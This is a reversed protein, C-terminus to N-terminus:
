DEVGMFRLMLDMQAALMPVGSHIVRGKTRALELLRTMEPSVVCEAVLASRAVVEESIPLEDDPKMGLATANIAVDYDADETTTTRVDLAPFAQRVRSALAEARSATRNRIVLSKCGHGALALAIAAAAGGAGVLLCSVGRIEVGAAQLGAIFGEGDLMTGLLRGDESRRIVNVAGVLRAEPTLDDLLDVIAEKHPMSVIAGSFNGIRRLAAVVDGLGGAPVQLPMLVFDGFRGREHLLANAMVPSRAQVVPDAILALMKTAGSVVPNTAPTPQLAESRTRFTM